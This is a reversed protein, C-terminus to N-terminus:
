EIVRPAYATYAALGKPGGIVALGAVERPAEIRIYGIEANDPLDEPTLWGAEGYAPKTLNTQIGINHERNALENGDADYAFATLIMFRRRPNTITLEQPIEPATLPFYLQRGITGPDAAEVAAMADADHYGYLLMAALPKLSYVEIWAPDRGEPLNAFLHAAQRVENGHPPLNLSVVDVEGEEDYALLAVNAHEDNPNALSVGTWRNPDRTVFPLYLEQSTWNRRRYPLAAIGKGLRHEYTVMGQHEGAAIQPLASNNLVAPGLGGWLDLSLNRGPSLTGTLRHDAPDTKEAQVQSTTITLDTTEEGSAVTHLRTRFHRVDRALHPVFTADGPFVSGQLAFRRGNDGEFFLVAALDVPSEIKLAHVDENELSISLSGKPVVSVTERSLLEEAGHIDLTLDVPADGDEVAILHLTYRGRYGNLGTFWTAGACDLVPEETASLDVFQRKHWMDSVLPCSDKGFDHDWLVLNYLNLNASVDPVRTFRNQAALVLLLDPLGSLDPMETLLNTELTLYNLSGSLTGVHTIRNRQMTLSFLNDMHATSPFSTLQNDGASLYILRGLHELGPLETLQNDTVDLEYLKPWAGLDPLETLGGSALRLHRLNSFHHMGTLGPLTRDSRNSNDFTYALQAEVTNLQGDDNRDYFRIFDAYLAPEFEEAPIIDQGFCDLEGGGAAPQYLVTKGDQEATVIDYCADLALPNGRVDVHNLLYPLKEPIGTLGEGGAVLTTLGTMFQIGELSQIEEHGPTTIETIFSAEYTDLTGSGDLDYQGVLFSAFATDPVPVPRAGFHITLDRIDLPSLYARQGMDFYRDEYEPKPEITLGGISFAIGPYHMISAFDYPTRSDTPFIEFQRELGPQINQWHIVVYDDRDARTHEHVFGLAHFMEHAIVYRRDWSTISLFQHGGLYGLESWNGDGSIVHIYGPMAAREEAGIEFFSLDAVTELENMVERFLARNGQSVNSDFYYYIRDDPWTVTTFGKSQVRATSFRMDGIFFHESGNKEARALAQLWSEPPSANIQKSLMNGSFAFGAWITLSLCLIARM